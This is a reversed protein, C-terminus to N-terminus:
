DELDTLPFDDDCIILQPNKNVHVVTAEAPFKKNIADRIALLLGKTPVHTVSLFGNFMFTIDYTGGISIDPDMIVALEPSGGSQSSLRKSM